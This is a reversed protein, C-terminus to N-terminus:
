QAFLPWFFTIGNHERQKTSLVLINRMKIGENIPLKAVEKYDKKIKLGSNYM